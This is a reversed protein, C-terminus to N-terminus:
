YKYLVSALRRPGLSPPPPPKGLPDTKIACSGALLGNEVTSSTPREQERRMQHIHAINRTYKVAGRNGGGLFASINGPCASPETSDWLVWSAVVRVHQVRTRFTRQSQKPVSCRRIHHMKSRRDPFTVQGDLSLRHSLHIREKSARKDTQTNEEGLVSFCPM